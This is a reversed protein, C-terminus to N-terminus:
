FESWTMPGNKKASTQPRQMRELGCSSHPSAGYLTPVPCIVWQGCHDRWGNGSYLRLYSRRLGWTEGCWALVLPEPCLAGGALSEVSQIPRRWAAGAASVPSPWTSEANDTISPLRTHSRPALPGKSRQLGRMDQRETISMTWRVALEPSPYVFLVVCRRPSPLTWM